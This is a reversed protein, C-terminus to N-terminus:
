NFDTYDFGSYVGTLSELFDKNLNAREIQEIQEAKEAEQEESKFYEKADFYDNLIKKEAEKGNESKNLQDQIFKLKDLLFDPVQVGLNHAHKLIGTFESVSYFWTVGTRIASTDGLLYKDIIHSM